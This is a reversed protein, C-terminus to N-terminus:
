FLTGVDACMNDMIHKQAISGDITHWKPHGIHTSPGTQTSGEESVLDGITLHVEFKKEETNHATYCAPTYDM